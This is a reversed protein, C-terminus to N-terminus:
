VPNILSKLLENAGASPRPANSNIIKGERDILIFRPISRVLYDKCISTDWGGAFLQVGPLNEKELMEKWANIDNDVSVGIIVIEDPPLSEALLKLDPAEMRCPGCWTAWVDIYVIKGKYDSLSHMTGNVDPYNFNPAEKGESILDWEQWAKELEVLQNQPVEDMAKFKHYFEELEDLNETGMYYLTNLINYYYLYSYVPSNSFFKDIIDFNLVIYDKYSQVLLSDKAMTDRLKWETFGISLDIFEPIESLQEDSFDTDEIFSYYEEKQQSTLTESYDIFSGYNLKINNLIVSIRKKELKSFEKYQENTNKNFINLGEELKESIDEYASIFELQTASYVFDNKNTKHNNLVLAQDVLYQNIEKGVGDIKCEQLWTEYDLDISLNFGPMVFFQVYENEYNLGIYAKYNEPIEITFRGNDGIITDTKQLYEIIIKDGEFNEINIQIYAPNKDNQNCSGIFIVIAFFAFIKIDKM